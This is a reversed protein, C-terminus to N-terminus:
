GKQRGAMTRLLWLIVLGFLVVPPGELASWWFPMRAYVDIGLLVLGLVVNAFGIYFIVRRLGRVDTSLVLLLGGHVAYIMAVSRTLYNTLRAAPFEGLGLWRHAAAMWEVPLFVAFFALLMM